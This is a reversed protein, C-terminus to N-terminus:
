WGGRGKNNKRSKTHIVIRALELGPLLLCIGDVAKQYGLGKPSSSSRVSVGSVVEDLVVLQGVMDLLVRPAPESGDEVGVAPDM